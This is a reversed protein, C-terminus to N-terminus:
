TSILSCRYVQPTNSSYPSPLVSLNTMCKCAGIIIADLVYFPHTFFKIDFAILLLIVEVAFILLITM